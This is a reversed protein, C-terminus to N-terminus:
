QRLQDSQDGLPILQDIDEGAIELNIPKGTAPGDANKDVSVKVGPIGRVASRVDEMVDRTSVGGRERFPM